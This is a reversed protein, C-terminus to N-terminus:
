PTGESKGIPIVAFNMRVLTGPALRVWRSASNGEIFRRNPAPRYGPVSMPDLVGTHYGPLACKVSFLGNPDTTIRNGDELYVVASPLGPEGNQQEGDFNRDEFVRGIITGCNSLLGANLRVRHIAPGDRVESGNDVRHGIINAYNKGTGRLADPTLQAAYAINLVSGVPLTVDPELTVTQGNQTVKISVPQQDLEARVSQPLFKFGVPLQDSISTKFLSGDSTNRVSLRYIVTDGPAASARDASKTLQVQNQQCMTNTLSLALLQLGAQNANEILVVNQDIQAAGSVAIPLGDLSMARYTVVDDGNIKQIDLIQIKIRRQSYLTSAAPPSVVLLYAKGIEIQGKSRDLLFSFRGNEANSLDYPNKNTANPAVGRPIDNTHDDPLETPSLKLLSGLESGTPDTPNIEYLGVMFGTYDALPQGGCGLIVGSPDSLSNDPNINLTNSFGSIPTSGPTVEYTFQAQNVFSQLSPSLTQARVQRVALDAVPLFFGLM